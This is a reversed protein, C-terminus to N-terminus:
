SPRRPSSTPAPCGSRAWSGSASSRSSRPSASTSRTSAGSCRPWWPRSARGARAAVPRGPRPRRGVGPAVEPDLVLIATIFRQADGIAAAQGVLPIMKLAGELNAPSINKGGATIILEKKRDVIRLYGDDDLVGIDGTHLWGDVLAEATKEPDKLYGEFVNGGRYLVEGDDGLRVESGPIAPGVTGPKIAYAAWTRPGSSESM